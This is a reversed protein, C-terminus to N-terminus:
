MRLEFHEFKEDRPESGAGVRGEAQADGCVAV